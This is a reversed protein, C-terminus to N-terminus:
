EDGTELVALQPEEAGIQRVESVVTILPARPRSAVEEFDEHEVYLRIVNRVPLYEAWTAKSGEPLAPCSVVENPTDTFILERGAFMEMLFQCDIDMAVERKSM